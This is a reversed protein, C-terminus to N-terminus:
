LNKQIQDLSFEETTHLLKRYDNLSSFYKAIIGRVQLAKPVEVGLDKLKSILVQLEHVQNMVSVNDIM